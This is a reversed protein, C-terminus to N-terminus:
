SIHSYARVCKCDRKTGQQENSSCQSVAMPLPKNTIDCMIRERDADQTTEHFRALMNEHEINFPYSSHQDVMMAEQEGLPLSRNRWPNSHASSTRWGSRSKNITSNSNRPLKVSSRKIPLSRNLWPNLHNIPLFTINRQEIFSQTAPTKTRNQQTVHYIDHAGPKVKYAPETFLFLNIKM